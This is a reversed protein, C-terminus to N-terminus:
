FIELFSVPCDGINLNPIAFKGHSSNWLNIRKLNSVIGNRGPCRMHIWWNNSEVNPSRQLIIMPKYLTWDYLNPDKMIDPDRTLLIIQIKDYFRNFIMTKKLQHLNVLEDLIFIHCSTESIVQFNELSNGNMNILSAMLPIPNTMLDKILNVQLNFGIFDCTRAENWNNISRGLYEYTTFGPTLLDRLIRSQHSPSQDGKVLSIVIIILQLLFLGTAKFMM